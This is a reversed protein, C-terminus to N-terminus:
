LAKTKKAIYIAGIGILIFVIALLLILHNPGYMSSITKEVWPTYHHIRSDFIMLGLNVSSYAVGLFVSWQPRLKLGWYSVLFVVLFTFIATEIFQMQNILKYLGHGEIGRQPIPLFVYAKVILVVISTLSLVLFKKTSPMM